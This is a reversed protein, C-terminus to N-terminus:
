AGCCRKGTKEFYRQHYEEARFFKGAPEIRTAIPKGSAKQIREWSAAALKQQEANHYFIVSRYQVGIDPGQRNVQTPDHISWFVDLLRDYTVKDPDYTVEVVETHGTQGTCVEEYTPNETTGGMFGSQTSIVGPEKLFADEVHWFCGAGFTAKEQKSSQREGSM